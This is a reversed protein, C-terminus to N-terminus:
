DTVTFTGATLQLAVHSTGNCFIAVAQGIQNSTTSFAVGDADLENHTILVDATGNTVTMDQDVMNIFIAFWGKQIVAPLTYIIAGTDGSNTFITGSDALTVTYDATKNQSRLLVKPGNAEDKSLDFLSTLKLKELWSNPGQWM